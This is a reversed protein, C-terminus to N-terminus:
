KFFDGVLWTVTTFRKGKTVPEVGHTLFSPFIIVDGKNQQPYFKEHGNKIYFKGGEFEDNLIALVTIKRTTNSHKIETDIHEEYKGGVEYMLFETQNSHTVNFKWFENNANLGISTLTGGIGVNMPLLVRKVNRIDYDIAGDGIYPLEKETEDKSYEKILNECFGNSIIKPLTYFSELKPENNLLKENLSEKKDYKWDAYQGNKDVYHLFVQAHWQNKLKNRWHYKEIGKYIVVDGTNMIIEQNNEGNSHDSMYIAWGKEDFGLTITASIECSEKDTHIPLEDNNSYLRAYSYTPYLQLGTIKEIHPLCYVLLNNFVEINKVSQSKPSQIDTFSLGNAISKKLENTLEDCSTKPLFNQIFVYGDKNFKDTEIM